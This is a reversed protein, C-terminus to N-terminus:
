FSARQKYYVVLLDAAAGYSQLGLEEGYGKLMADYVRDSARSVKSRYKAWYANEARLDADVSAPLALRVERWEEPAVRYLENSLLIYGMLWGAYCYASNDSRTSVLVSLFNCQQESAIGRRHALEHAVTTPFTAAPFDMNLNSEGTFPCYFGTVNMASMVRSFFIKKPVPDMGVRLFPFEEYLPEYLTPACNLAEQRSVACIGSADRAVVDAYLATQKAFYRTVALLDERAVPVPYIGSRDCFDEAYYNVGWLLCFAAYLSLSLNVPIMCCRYLAERRYEAHLIHAVSFVVYAATLVAAFLYCLEAGSFSVRSWLSGLTREFPMSVHEAFFTM